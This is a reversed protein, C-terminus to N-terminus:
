LVEDKESFSPIEVDWSINFEKKSSVSSDPINNNTKIKEKILNTMNNMKKSLRISM